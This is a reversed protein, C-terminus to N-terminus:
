IHRKCTNEGWRHNIKEYEKYPSERLLLNKLKIVLKDINGKM